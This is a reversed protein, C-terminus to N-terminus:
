HLWVGLRARREHNSPPPRPEVAARYAAVQPRPLTAPHLYAFDLPLVLKVDKEGPIKRPVAPPCTDCDDDTCPEPCPEDDLSLTDDDGCPAKRDRLSGCAVDPVLRPCVLAM